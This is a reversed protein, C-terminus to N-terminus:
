DFFLYKKKSERFIDLTEDMEDITRPYGRYVRERVNSINLRPDPIAYDTNVFGSYDFDYPIRISVHFSDSKSLLLKINHSAFVSWDTNGIMYEFISVLTMQLRDTGQDTIQNTRGIRAITENQLNKIMKWSFLM